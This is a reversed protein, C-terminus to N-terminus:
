GTVKWQPFTWRVQKDLQDLMKNLRTVNQLAAKKTEPDSLDSAEIEALRSKIEQRKYENVQHALDAAADILCGVMVEARGLSGKTGKFPYFDDDPPPIALDRTHAEPGLDDDFQPTEIGALDLAVNFDSSSYCFDGLFEFFPTKFVDTATVARRLDAKKETKQRLRWRRQAEANANPM